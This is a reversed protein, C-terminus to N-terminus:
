LDFLEIFITEDPFSLIYAALFSGIIFLLGILSQLQATSKMQTTLYGAPVFSLAAAPAFFQEAQKFMFFGNAAMSLKVDAPANALANFASSIGWAHQTLTLSCISIACFISGMFSRMLSSETETSNRSFLICTVCLVIISTGVANLSQFYDHVGLLRGIPTSLLTLILCCSWSAGSVVTSMLDFKEKILSYLWLIFYGVISIPALAATMFLPYLSASSGSWNLIDQKDKPASAIVELVQSMGFEYGAVASLVTIGIPITAILGSPKKGIIALSIWALVAVGTWVSLFIPVLSVPGGDQIFVFVSSMPAGANIFIYNAPNFYCAGNILLHDKEIDVRIEFEQEHHM